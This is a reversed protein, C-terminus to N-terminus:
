LTAIGPLLCAFMLSPVQNNSTIFPSTNPMPWDAALLFCFHRSARVEHGFSAASM